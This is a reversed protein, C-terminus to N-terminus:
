HPILSNRTGASPRTDNLFRGTPRPPPIILLIQHNNNIKNTLNKEHGPFFKLRKFLIQKRKELPVTYYQKTSSSSINLTTTFSSM